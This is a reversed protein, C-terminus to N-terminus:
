FGMKSEIYKQLLSLSADGIKDGFKFLFGKLKQAATLRDEEEADSDEIEHVASELLMSDAEAHKAVLELLKVADPSLNANGSVEQAVIGQVSNFFQQNVVISPGTAPQTTKSLELALPATFRSPLPILQDVINSDPAGSGCEELESELRHRIALVRTEREHRLDRNLRRAERAYRAIIGAVTARQVNNEELLQEAKEPNEICMELFDSFNRLEEALGEGRLSDDGYFEHVEGNSTTYGGLRVRQGKIQALWNRFLELLKSAEGAWLRGSPIYIRFLLRKDHQEVFKAVLVSLEANTKYPVITLDYERLLSRVKERVDASVARLVQEDQWLIIREEEGFINTINHPVGLRTTINSEDSFVGDHIYIAHSITQLSRLIKLAPISYNERVLLECTSATLKVLAGLLGPKTLQEDITLWNEPSSELMKKVYKVGTSKLKGTASERDVNGIFIFFPDVDSHETTM